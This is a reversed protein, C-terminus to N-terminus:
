RLRVRVNTHQINQAQDSIITNARSVFIKGSKIKLNANDIIRKNSERQNPCLLGEDLMAFALSVYTKGVKRINERHFNSEPLIM